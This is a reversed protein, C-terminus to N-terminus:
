NCAEAELGYILLGRESAVVVLTLEGIRDGVGGETGEVGGSARRARAAAGGVDLVASRDEVSACRTRAFAGKSLALLPALLTVSGKVVGLGNGGM